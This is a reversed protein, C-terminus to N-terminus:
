NNRFNEDQALAREVCEIWERRKRPLLQDFTKKSFDVAPESKAINYLDETFHEVSIKHSM